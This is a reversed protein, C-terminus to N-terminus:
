KVEVIVSSHIGYVTTFQLQPYLSLHHTSCSGSLIVQSWLPHQLHLCLNPYNLFDGDTSLEALIILAQAVLM